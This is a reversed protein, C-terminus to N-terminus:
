MYIYMPTCVQMYFTRTREEEAAKWTLFEEWSSFEVNQLGITIINSTTLTDKHISEEIICRGFQEGDNQECHQLLDTSFYFPPSSCQPIPCQFRPKWKLDTQGHFKMQHDKLNNHRSFGKGCTPCIHAKGRKDFEELYTALDKSTQDKHWTAWHRCLSQRSSLQLKCEPCQNRRYRETDMGEGSLAASQCQSSPVAAM